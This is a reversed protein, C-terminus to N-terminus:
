ELEESGKRHWVKGKLKVRFVIPERISELSEVPGSRAAVGRPWTMLAEDASAIAKAPFGTFGVGSDDALTLIAHKTPKQPPFPLPTAPYPIVPTIIPTVSKPPPIVPPPDARLVLQPAPKDLGDLAALYMERESDTIYVSEVRPAPYQMPRLPDHPFKEKEEDISEDEYEDEDIPPPIDKM